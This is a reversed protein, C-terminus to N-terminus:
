AGVRANCWVLTGGHDAAWAVLDALVAGGLQRGRFGARTAMGRIRWADARDADWPPSDPMITGVSVVEGDVSVAVHHALPHDDKPMVSAEPPQGPRLVEMRVPRVQAVDVIRRKTGGEAM